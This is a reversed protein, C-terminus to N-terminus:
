LFLFEVTLNKGKVDYIIRYDAVKNFKVTSIMGKLMIEDVISRGIEAKGERLKETNYAQDSSDNHKENQSFSFTGLFIKRIV